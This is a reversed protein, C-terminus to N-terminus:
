RVDLAKLRPADPFERLAATLAAQAEAPRNLKRSAEVLVASALPDPGLADIYRAASEAAEPWRGARANVAARLWDAAPTGPRVAEATEVHGLAAEFNGATLEASAATFEWQARHAPGLASPTGRALHATAAAPSGAALAARAAALADLTEAAAPTASLIAAVQETLRWGLRGDEFDYAVWGGPGRPDRALWWRAPVADGSPLLHRAAVVCIGGGPLPRVRRLTVATAGDLLGGAAVARMLERQSDRDLAEGGGAAALTRGTDFLDALREPHRGGSIEAVRAFFAEVEPDAPPPLGPRAFAARLEARRETASEPAPLPEPLPVPAVAHRMLVVAAVALGCVVAFASAHWREFFKAL